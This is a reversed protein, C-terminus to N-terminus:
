MTPVNGTRQMWRLVSKMKELQEATLGEGADVMKQMVDTLQGQDEVGFTSMVDQTAQEVLQMQGPPVAVDQIPLFFDEEDVEPDVFDDDDEERRARKKGKRKRKMRSSSAVNSNANSNSHSQSQQNDLDTDSGEDSDSQKPSSAPFFDGDEQEDPDNEPITDWNFFDDFASLDLNTIDYSPTDAPSTGTIDSSQV